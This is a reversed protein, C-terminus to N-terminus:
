AQQKMKTRRSQAPTMSPSLAHNGTKATRHAATTRLRTGHLKTAASVSEQYPFRFNKKSPSFGCQGLFFAVRFPGGEPLVPHVGISQARRM